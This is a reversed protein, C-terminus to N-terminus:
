LYLYISYTKRTPPYLQLGKIYICLTVRTLPNLSSYAKSQMYLALKWWPNLPKTQQSGATIIIMCTLGESLAFDWIFRQYLYISIKFPWEASRVIYRFYILTNYLVMYVVVFLCWTAKVKTTAGCHLDFPTTMIIDKSESLM